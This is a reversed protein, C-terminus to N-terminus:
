EVVEAAGAVTAWVLEVVCVAGCACCRRLCRLREGAADVVEVVPETWLAGDGGGAPVGVAGAPTRAAAPYPAYSSHEAWHPPATGADSRRGSRRGWSPDPPTQGTDVPRPGTLGRPEGDIM